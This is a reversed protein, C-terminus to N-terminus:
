STRDPELMAESGTTITVAATTQELSLSLEVNLPINSELDISEEDPQFGPAEARVKYTNFPLNVLKFSGQADTQTTQRYGTVPQTVTIKANPVLAGTPDKVVGQVSGIRAQAFATPGIILLLGGIIAAKFLTTSSMAYAEQINGTFSAPTVVCVDGN